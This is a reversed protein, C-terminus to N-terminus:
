ERKWPWRVLGRRKPKTPSDLSPGSGLPTATEVEEPRLPHPERTAPRDAGAEEDQYAAPSVEQGAAAAEENFVAQSAVGIEPPPPEEDEPAESILPIGIREGAFTTGEETSGKRFPGAGFIWVDKAKSSTRAIGSQWVARGTERNYAFVALKAVGRQDTRKAFPVEPITPPVGYSTPLVAPVSVAPIGFLLDDRDTGVAGARAEVVYTADEPKSKVVCGYALLQQRISSAIYSRDITTALYQEDFYVPKGALISFDMQDIARDIADSILVQETATRPTDTWRTTGCGVAALLGIMLSAAWRVPHGPAYETM